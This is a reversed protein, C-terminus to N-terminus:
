FRDKRSRIESFVAADSTDVMGLFRRIDPDGYRLFPNTAFEADMRTPMTAAGQARAADVEAARKQLASNNPDVSLAFRANAQTYEHGGFVMTEPPLTRLKEMSEYMQAHSGEFVRGCGMAFLTDGTFITHEGPLYYNIMDLTHGPTHWAEIDTHGLKFTDGATVTRDFAFTLGGKYGPGTTSCGTQAKVEAMGDTHDHHWHTIWLEDLQWGTADLAAFVASADGTDVCATRGTAGDRLLVGYNDSLYQFQHFEIPM